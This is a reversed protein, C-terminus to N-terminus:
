NHCIMGSPLGQGFVYINDSSVGRLSALRSIVVSNSSLSYNPYKDYPSNDAYPRTVEEALIIIVFTNNLDQKSM